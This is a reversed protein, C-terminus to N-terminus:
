ISSRRVLRCILVRLILIVLGSLGVGRAKGRLCLGSYLHTRYRASLALVSLLRSLRRVRMSLVMAAM